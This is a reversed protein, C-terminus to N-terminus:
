QPKRVFRVRGDRQDVEDVEFGAQMWARGQSHTRDNAWWARHKWASTPLSCNILQEIQLFSLTMMDVARPTAALFQQLLYYRM